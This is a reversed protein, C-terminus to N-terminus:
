KIAANTFLVYSTGHAKWGSVKSSMGTLSKLQYLYIAYPDDALISVAQKYATDRKAQDLTAAGADLYQQADQNCYASLFGKCGALLDLLAPDSFTSWRNYYLPSLQKKVWKDNYVATELINLKVKIGVDGLEAVVAEALSSPLSSTMDMDVAFGQPAGATALLTKAKAPDFAYPKVDSNYGLLLQSLPGVLPRGFGGILSQVISDKDVAYNLAQRVEKIKLPTDKTTDIYVYDHQTTDKEVVTFGGSKLAPVQDSPVDMIMDAAGSRLDALRTAPDTVPRLIVTKVQPKGKYSGDWYNPNAELTLHDDKVWEVFMYPGSGIPKKAFGDVGVDKLYQGPLVSFNNALVDFIRADTKSLVLRVSMPDLVQAEKVAAFVSTSPAKISPDLLHDMSAKVDNATVDQGNHFKVGTRLKFDITKDDVVNWSEALGPVIKGDWDREVLSDFVNLRVSIGVLQSSFYPHPSEIESITDIRLTGALTSAAASTPKAAPVTTAAPASTAAATPKGQAQPVSTAAPAATPAPATTPAAPATPKAAPLATPPAPAATPAPAAPATCGALLLLGAIASSTLRSHPFM